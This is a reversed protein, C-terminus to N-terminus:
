QVEQRRHGLGDIWNLVVAPSEANAFSLTAPIIFRKGDATVDFTADPSFVGPTVLKQPIDARVTAGLSVNVGLITLDGGLFFLERADKRWRPSYGGNYSIQWKSGTLETGSFARVYIESRGTEDSAYALWRGDSSLAGCRENSEGRLLPIPAGKVTLPLMWLDFGTKSAAESYILFRGDRTRDCPLRMGDPIDSAELLTKENEPGATSKAYLASAQIKAGFVSIVNRKRM